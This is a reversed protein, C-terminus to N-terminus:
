VLFSHGMFVRPMRPRGPKAPAAASTMSENVRDSPACGARASPPSSVASPQFFTIANARQASL